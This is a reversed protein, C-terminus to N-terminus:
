EDGGKEGTLAPLSTPPPEPESGEALLSMRRGGERGSELRSVRRLGTISGVHALADATTPAPGYDPIRRLPVRGAEDGSGGNGRPRSTPPQESSSPIVVGVRASRLRRRETQGGRGRDPAPTDEGDGSGDQRPSLGSVDPSGIPINPNSMLGGMGGGGRGAGFMSEPVQSVILSAYRPDQSLSPVHIVSNEARLLVARMAAHNLESEYEKPPLRKARSAKGQVDMNIHGTEKLQSSLEGRYAAWTAGAYWESM